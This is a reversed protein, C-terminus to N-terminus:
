SKSRRGYWLFLQRGLAKGVGDPNGHRIGTHPLPGFGTAGGHAGLIPDAVRYM